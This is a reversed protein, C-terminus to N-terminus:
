NDTFHQEDKDKFLLVAFNLMFLHVEDESYNKTSSDAKFIKM